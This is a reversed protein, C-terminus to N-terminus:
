HDLYTSLSSWSHLSYILYFDTRVGLINDKCFRTAINEYWTIPSFCQSHYRVHRTLKSDKAQLRVCLKSKTQVKYYLLLIVGPIASTATVRYVYRALSILLVRRGHGSSDRMVAEYSSLNGYKHRWRRANTRWNQYRYKQSRIFYEAFASVKFFWSVM